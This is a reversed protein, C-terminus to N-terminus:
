QITPMINCSLLTHYDSQEFFTNEQSFKYKRMVELNDAPRAKVHHQWHLYLSGM